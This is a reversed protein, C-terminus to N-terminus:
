PPPSRIQEAIVGERSGNDDGGFSPGFVVVIKCGDLPSAEAVLFKDGSRSIGVVIQTEMDLCALALGVPVM